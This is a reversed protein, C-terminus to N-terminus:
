KTNSFAELLIFHISRILDDPNRLRVNVDILIQLLYLFHDFRKMAELKLYVFQTCYLKHFKACLLTQHASRLNQHKEEYKEWRM